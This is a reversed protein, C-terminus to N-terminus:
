RDRRENWQRGEFIMACMLRSLTEPTVDKTGIDAKNESGAVKHIQLNRRSVHQVRAQAFVTHRDDTQKSTSITCRMKSQSSKFEGAPGMASRLATAESASMLTEDDNDHKNDGLYSVTRSRGSLAGAEKLM